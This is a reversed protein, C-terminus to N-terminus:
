PQALGLRQGRHPLRERLVPLQLRRDDEDDLAAPELDDIAELPQARRACEAPTLQARVHERDVDDAGLHGDVRQVVVAPQGLELFRPQHAREVALVLEVLRRDTSQEAPVLAPDTAAQHEGLAEVVRHLGVHPQPQECRTRRSAQGLQLTAVLSGRRLHDRAGAERASLRRLEDGLQEGAAVVRRTRPEDLLAELMGRRTRRGPGRATLARRGLPHHRVDGRERAHRSAQLRSKAPWRERREARTHGLEGRM